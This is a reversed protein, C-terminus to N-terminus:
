DAAASASSQQPMVSSSQTTSPLSHRCSISAPAIATAQDALLTVAGDASQQWHTAEVLVPVAPTVPAIPTSQPYRYATLDRMDSWPRDSRVEQVPNDPLGGRGTVVFSNSQTANCGAVIEQSSDVLTTPLLALGANPDSAITNIQVTGSVNFQSSATIDNTPDQQPTLTNRFTLGVIGRASIQINGGRGKVANAIINSNEFGAIIPATLTINGGNGSGGAAALIQSSRRLILARNVNLTINGGEGSASSAAIISQQDLNVTNAQITISGASGSGESRALIAGGETLQLSSTAIAINGSDGSPSDPLGLALRILEPIIAASADIMSPPYGDVRGSVEIGESVNLFLNGGKGQALASAAVQGSQRIFLRPTNITLNGGNGRSLSSSTILSPQGAPLRNTGNVEVLESANIVLQRSDGSGRASTTIMSGNLVRLQQTSITTDGASGAGAGANVISTTSTIFRDFQGDLQIRTAAIAVNGAQAASNSFAIIKANNQLLLDTAVIEIPAGPGLNVAESLISSFFNDPALGELSLTESAQVRLRNAPNLGQNQLLISSGDTLRINRGAVQIEGSGPGSADILARRELSIDQWQTMGNYTLQWGDAQPLLGVTGAGVSGVEIRGQPAALVGGTLNVTNGVLALTNGPQVQLGSSAQGAGRVAVLFPPQQLTHGNGQVTISGATPGMQLGVPISMTLLPPGTVHVASFETRDRFQVSNATTAIFSGGVNLSANAGFVIGSPNLLFLSARGNTQLLGDIQSATGGTVRAFITQVEIAQDFVAAGGTPVSFQGFSHFLNTGSRSGGHITFNLNNVTTVQTPLTGDPTIQAVVGDIALFFSIGCGLVTAIAYSPRRCSNQNLSPFRM